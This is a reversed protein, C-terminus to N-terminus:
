RHCTYCHVIDAPDIKAHAALAATEGPAPKWKMDTIKDHPRLNPAPNRHCDLCFQMTLPKARYTLPMEEVHGHCSVCGVGKAIHIDHRFFVFDPVRAVRQWVLPKNKAFSERVPALLEANTWIQSHCTMCTETPPLEARAGTEAGSHCFRCDIGLGSVHHKHSFPVPQPPVRNTSVYYDSRAYGIAGAISGVSLSAIGILFLRMWIDGAPSFIQTM